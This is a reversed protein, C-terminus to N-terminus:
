MIRLNAPPAPPPNQSIGGTGVTTYDAGMDIGNRGAGKCPSNPQLAFDAATSFIGSSNVWLPDSALDGTGPNAGGSLITATQWSTLSTYTVNNWNMRFTGNNGWQNHDESVMSATANIHLYGENESGPNAGTKTCNNYIQANSWNTVNRKWLFGRTPTYASNNYIQWNTGGGGGSEWNVDIMSIDSGYQSMINHHISINNDPLMSCCQNARLTRFNHLMANFSVTTNYTYGKMSIAYSTSDHLNNNQIVAGIVHYLKVLAGNDSPGDCTFPGLNNHRIICNDCDELRILDVNDAVCKEANTGGIMTNNEFIAGTIHTADDDGAISMGFTWGGTARMTFGRLTVYSRMGLVKIMNTPADLWTIELIPTEGPYAQFVIPNAATGSHSFPIVTSGEGLDHIPHTGSISYTGGRFNVTDGPLASTWATRLSCATTGNLPTSGSCTPWTATGTPSAYYTGAQSLEGSLLALTGWFAFMALGKQGSRLFSM